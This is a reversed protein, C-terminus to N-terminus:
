SQQQLRQDLAMVGQQKKAAIQATQMDISRQAEFTTMEKQAEYQATLRQQAAEARAEVVEVQRDKQEAVVSEDLAPAAVPFGTYKSQM